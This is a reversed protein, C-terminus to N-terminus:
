ADDRGNTEAADLRTWRVGQGSGDGLFRIRAAQHNRNLSNITDHLRRKPEQDVQPPLPDDIRPPWGEEEFASLIVEQNPAPVKFRKIVVGEYRLEQLDRDWHPRSAASPPSPARHTRPAASDAPRAALAQRAWDFGAETLAFVSRKGFTAGAVRFSREAEGPLSVEARHEVLGGHVLWRLDSALLGARRLEAAEVAFQWADYGLHAAYERAALLCDLGALIRRVVEPRFDDLAPRPAARHAGRSSEAASPTAALQGETWRVLRDVPM